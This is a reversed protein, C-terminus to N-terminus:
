EQYVTIVTLVVRWRHPNSLTPVALSQGELKAVTVKPFCGSEKVRGGAGLERWLHM